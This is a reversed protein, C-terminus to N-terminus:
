NNISNKIEKIKETGVKLGEWIKDIKEQDPKMRFILINDQFNPNYAVFDWWKRGTLAINMQIQWLYKSEIEKEKNLIMKFHKADNLCKIEIGGNEGVLGDPSCGCYEDYEVFGVQDVKVGKELEYIGRAQEELENGREIDKNSYYDILGSSYYESMLSYIYTELGKGCNGIAQANSGTMKGKRIEIWEPSGQEFKKHIKM